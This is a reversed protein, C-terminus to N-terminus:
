FDEELEKGVDEGLRRKMEQNERQLNRLVARYPYDSINFDFYQWNHMLEDGQSNRLKVIASELLQVLGRLRASKEAHTEAMGVSEALMVVSRFYVVCDEVLAKKTSIAKATEQQFHSIINRIKTHYEGSFGYQIDDEYKKLVKDIKLVAESLEEKSKISAYEQLYEVVDDVPIMPPMLGQTNKSIIFENANM